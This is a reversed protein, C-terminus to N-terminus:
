FPPEKAGDRFLNWTDGPDPFLELAVAYAEDWSDEDVWSKAHVHQFITESTRLQELTVIYRGRGYTTVGWDCVMWQPPCLEVAHRRETSALGAELLDALGLLLRDAAFTEGTRRRIVLGVEILVEAADQGASWDIWDTVAGNTTEVRLMLPESAVESPDFQASVYVRSNTGVNVRPPRSLTTLGLRDARELAEMVAERSASTRLAAFADADAASEAELRESVQQTVEDLRRDVDTRLMELSAAAESRVDEVVQRTEAAVLRTEAQVEGLHGDLSRTLFYLPAFLALSAGVTLFLDRTWGDDIGPGPLLSALVAGLGALAFLAATRWPRVSGAARRWARAFRSSEM